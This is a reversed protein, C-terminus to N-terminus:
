AVNALNLVLRVTINELLLLKQEKLPLEITNTYKM